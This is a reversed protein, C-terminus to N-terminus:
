RNLTKRADVTSQFPEQGEVWPISALARRQASSNAKVDNPLQYIAGRIDGVVQNDSMDQDSLKAKIVAVLTSDNMLLPYQDAKGQIGQEIVANFDNCVGTAGYGSAYLGEAKASSNIIDTLAGAVTIARATQDGSSAGHKVSGLWAPTDFENASFFGTASMGHYAKLDADLKPGTVGPGAKININMESHSVPLTAVKGQADRYGTRIMLPAPVDLYKPPNSGPVLTKLEAFNAIRSEFNSEIQYGEARLGAVFDPLKTYPKGNFTVEFQQEAPM